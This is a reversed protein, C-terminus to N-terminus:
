KKLIKDLFGQSVEPFEADQEFIKEVMSDKTLDEYASYPINVVKGEKLQDSVCHFLLIRNDGQEPFVGGFRFETDAPLGEPM